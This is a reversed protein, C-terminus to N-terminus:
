ELCYSPNAAHTEWVFMCYAHYEDISEYPFYPNAKAEPEPQAKNNTSTNGM